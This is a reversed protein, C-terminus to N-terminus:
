NPCVCVHVCVCVCVCVCVHLFVCVCAWAWVTLRLINSFTCARKVWFGMQSTVDRRSVVRCTRGTWRTSVLTYYSISVPFICSSSVHRTSFHGSSGRPIQAKPLARKPRWVKFNFSPCFVVFLPVTAFCIIALSFRIIYYCHRFFPIKFLIVHSM